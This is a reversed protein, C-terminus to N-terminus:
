KLRKPHLLWEEIIMRVLERPKRRQDSAIRSLHDIAALSLRITFLQMPQEALQKPTM